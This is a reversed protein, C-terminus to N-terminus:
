IGDENNNVNVNHQSIGLRAQISGM